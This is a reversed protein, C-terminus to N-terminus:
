EITNMDQWQPQVQMREAVEGSKNNSTGGRGGLNKLADKYKAFGNTKDPSGVPSPHFWLNGKSDRLEFWHLERWDFDGVYESLNVQWILRPKSHKSFVQSPLKFNTVKRLPENNKKRIRRNRIIQLPNYVGEVNPFAPKGDTENFNAVRQYRELSSYYSEFVARVKDARRRTVQPIRIITINEAEGPVGPVPSLPQLGFSVAANKLQDQQQQQQASLRKSAPSLANEISQSYQQEDIKLEKMIKKRQEVLERADDIILSYRDKKKKGNKTYKKPRTPTSLISSTDYSSSECSSSSSSSSSSSTCSRKHPEGDTLLQERSSTSAGSVLTRKTGLSDSNSDISPKNVLTFDDHFLRLSQLQSPSQYHSQYKQQQSVPNVPPQMVSQHQNQRDKPQTQHLSSEVTSSSM